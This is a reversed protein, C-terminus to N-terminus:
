LLSCLYAFNTVAIDGQILLSQLGALQSIQAVHADEIAGCRDISLTGIQKLRALSVYDEESLPMQELTLSRLQPLSALRSLQCCFRGRNFALHQVTSLKCIALMAEESVDCTTIALSKLKRLRQLEEMGHRSLHSGNISLSELHELAAIWTLDHDHISAALTLSRLEPLASFLEPIQIRSVRWNADREEVSVISAFFDTGIIEQMAASITSRNNNHSTDYSFGVGSRRLLQAADHQRVGRQLWPVIAITLIALMALFGRLSMQLLRRWRIVPQRRIM